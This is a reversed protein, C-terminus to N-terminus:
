KGELATIVRACSFTEGANICQIGEKHEIICDDDLSGPIGFWPEICIYPANPKTWLLMFPFGPYELKIGRGTKRNVLSCEDSKVDKFVLADVAFYKYDLPLVKTNEIVPITDKGILNGYLVYSNLTENEKFIIDYEEIGEPCAYGEHAGVSFFMKDDNINKVDYDVMVKDAFLTYTVRFEFDYPFSVKTEDTATLLFTAKTDSVSEVAFDMGKAFGHKSLIYEKGNLIYKDDKLGGAIPFLHPASSAWFNPDGVWLYEVSNVTFSKMEAGRENIKLVANENKLVVM